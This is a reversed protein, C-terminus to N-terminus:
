AAVGAIIRDSWFLGLCSLAVGVLLVVGGTGGALLFQVPRAGILQGLAIGLVPMGALVAATTRPGALGADLRQRFRSREVIDHQAARMLTAVAVGHVAALQWCVAMRQWQAPIASRAAVSRLGDAIDAGLRGRASVEDLCPGVRGGVEAAAAALAAVPHAGVRLEGVLIDLADRLDVSEADRASRRAARRRRSMVTGAVIAGALVTTPELMMLGLVIAPVVSWVAGLRPARLRTATVLRHRAPAPTILLGLALLIAAISM